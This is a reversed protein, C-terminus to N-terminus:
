YNFVSYVPQSKEEYTFLTGEPFCNILKNFSLTDNPDLIVAKNESKMSTGCFSLLTDIKQIRYINRKQKLNYFIADPEPQGWEGWCCSMLIVSNNKPLTDIYQSIRKGFAINKNPLNDPYLVFYKYINLSAILLLVGTLYFTKLEKIKEYIFVIGSAVMLYVLPIVGITRGSNPIERLYISPSASPIILILFSIFFYLTMKRNKKIWYYVGLIMFIGSVPDLHPTNPVNIRFGEEGKFHFMGLIRIVRIGMDGYTKPNIFQQIKPVKSGVYGSIFDQRQRLLVASFLILFPILFILSISIGRFKKRVFLWFLLLLPFVFTQPYTFLGLGSFFSVWFLDKIKGMKLYRQLFYFILAVLLPIVIQSNGVRAWVITWFSISSILATLLAIKEGAFGKAMLYIFYVAVGGIIVSAIKYDVYSNGVLFILPSILYHYFPGASLSFYFPWKGRLIQLVYNNLISIDGFWEGPIENLRFFAIFFYITFVFILPNRKVFKVTKLRCRFSCKQKRKLKKM